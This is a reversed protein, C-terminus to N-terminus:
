HHLLSQVLMGATPVPMGSRHRVCAFSQAVRAKGLDPSPLASHTFPGPFSPLFHRSVHGRDRHDHAALRMLSSPGLRQLEADNKGLDM